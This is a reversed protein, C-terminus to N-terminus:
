TVITLTAGPDYTKQFTAFDMAPGGVYAAPQGTKLFFQTGRFVMQADLPFYFNGYMKQGNITIGKLATSITSGDAAKATKRGNDTVGFQGHCICGNFTANESDSLIFASNEGPPVIWTVGNYTVPNTLECRGPSVQKGANVGAVTAGQWIGGNFTINICGGDTWPGDGLENTSNWGNVVVNKCAWLKGAGGENYVPYNAANNAGTTIGNFVSNQCYASFGNQGCGTASVGNVVIATALHGLTGDGARWGGSDSTAYGGNVTDNDNIVTAYHQVAKFIAGKYVNGNITVGTALTTTTAAGKADFTQPVSAKAITLQSTVSALSDSLGKMSTTASSLQSQVSGLSSTLQSNASTLQGNSATLQDITASANNLVTKINDLDALNVTLTAIGM